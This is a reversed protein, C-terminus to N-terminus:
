NSQAYKKMKALIKEHTLTMAKDMKELTMQTCPLNGTFKRRRKTDKAHRDCELRTAALIFEAHYLQRAGDPLLLGPDPNVLMFLFGWKM